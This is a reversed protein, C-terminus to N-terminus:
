KGITVPLGASTWAGGRRVELRFTATTPAPATFALTGDPATTVVRLPQGDATVRVRHRQDGPRVRGWVSVAGPAAPRVVLPYPFSRMV